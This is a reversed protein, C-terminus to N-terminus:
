STRCTSRRGTSRISTTSSSRSVAPRSSARVVMFPVGLWRDSRELHVIEPAPVDTRARVLDIVRQQFELDFTRFTPYPSDPAPALRAAFVEDDLRFLVTDNAM